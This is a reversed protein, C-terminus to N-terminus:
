SEKDVCLLLWLLLIDVIWIGFVAWNIDMQSNVFVHVTPYDPREWGSLFYGVMFLDTLFIIFFTKLLKRRLPTMLVM